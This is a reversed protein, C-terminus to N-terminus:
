ISGEDRLSGAGSAGTGGSVDDVRAGTGVSGSITGFNVGSGGTLTVGIAKAVIAGRNTLSGELSYVGGEGEITGTNSITSIDLRIGYNGGSILGSNTVNAEQGMIGTGGTLTGSNVILAEGSTYNQVKIAATGGDIFGQNLISANSQDLYVGLSGAIVSGSNSVTGLVDYIFVGSGSASANHIEGAATISLPSLYVGYGLTVENTITSHITSGAM